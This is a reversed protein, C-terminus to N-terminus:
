GSSPPAAPRPTRPGERAGAKSIIGRDLLARALADAVLEHGRPRLHWVDFVGSFRLLYTSEVAARRLAPLLDVCALRRERCYRWFNAQPLYPYQPDMQYALPALALVFRAGDARVAEDLRDLIGRLWRWETSDYDLWVDIPQTDEATVYVPWRRGGVLRHGENQLHEARRRDLWRRALTRVLLSPSARWRELGLERRVHSAHYAPNPISDEPVEEIAKGLADWHLQPDALDNLCLVEIVVDPQLFRMRELYFHLENWPTYATVGANVVQVDPDRQALRQELLRPFAREASVRVGYTVSDGLVVIRTVGPPKPVGVVRERLGQSSIEPHEPNLGFAYGCDRCPVFRPPDHSEAVPRWAARVRLALECVGLVLGISALSLAVGGLWRQSGIPM